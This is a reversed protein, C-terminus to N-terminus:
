RPPPVDGLAIVDRVLREAREETDAGVVIRASGADEDSHGAIVVYRGSPLELILAAWPAPLGAVATRGTVVQSRDLPIPAPPEYVRVVERGVAVIDKASAGTEGTSMVADDGL